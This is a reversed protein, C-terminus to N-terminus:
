GAKAHSCDDPFHFDGPKNGCRVNHVEQSLIPLEGALLDRLVERETRWVHLTATDIDHAVVEAAVCQGQANVYHVGALVIM